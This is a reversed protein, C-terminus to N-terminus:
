VPLSVNLEQSAEEERRMLAEQLKREREVVGEVYLREGYNLYEGVTRSAALERSVWGINERQSELQMRIEEERQVALAEKKSRTEEAQAYLRNFV